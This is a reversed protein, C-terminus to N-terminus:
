DSWITAAIYREAEPHDNYYYVTVLKGDPRQVTCPYGLDWNGGDSRLILERGWSQGQDDSIKARIGYPDDRYGYVLCIRGDALQLMSPPNGGLKDVPTNLYTWTKGRDSSLYNEIWFTRNNKQKEGECRRIAVLFEDESLRVSSPMIAFGEPEPGIWALFQWTKGGETLLACFPRGEKGNPKIATLFVLITDRDLVHYDTRAAIGVQGFDPIRYPGQWTRCRDMSTFFWSQANGGDGSRRFTLAFDPNTFELNGPHAIPEKGGETFPTLESTEEVAWTEGGDLSRGQWEYKKAHMDWAHGEAKAMFFANVFGVVIENDWQWIGYNAPWGGFRGEKKFVTVNQYVNAMM